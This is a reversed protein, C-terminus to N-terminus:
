MVKNQEYKEEISFLYEMIDNVKDYKREMLKEKKSNILTFIGDVNILAYKKGNSLEYFQVQKTKKM